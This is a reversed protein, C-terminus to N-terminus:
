ESEGEFLLDRLGAFRPDVNQTDCSCLQENRNCGCVPCLGLCDPTCLPRYEVTLFLEQEIYPDLVVRNNTFVHVNEQEPRERNTFSERLSAVMPKDFQGLCRSCIYTVNTRIKGSAICEDDDAVVDMEVFVDSIASVQTCTEAIQPLQMTEELHQEHLRELINISFQVNM